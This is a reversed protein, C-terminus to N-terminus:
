KNVSSLLSVCRHEYLAATCGNHECLHADDTSRISHVSSSLPNRLCQSDNKKKTEMTVRQQTVNSWSQISKICYCSTGAACRLFIGMDLVSLLNVFFLHISLYFTIDTNKHTHQGVYPIKIYTTCMCELITQINCKTCYKKYLHKQFINGM